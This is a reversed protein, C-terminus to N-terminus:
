VTPIVSYWLHMVFTSDGTTFDQTLCSLYLGKNVTTSFPAIAVTNGAVGNFQFSTSAVAFFDAAAETGSAAVGAGHVTADYQLGVVGGAQYAASVFTMCLAARHLVILTNAGQAALLLKPAAYMGNFQAATIAVTTYKLLLPSVMSSLVKSAGIATVGTNGITVDGTVAVSTAVNGASGVLINTSTLAALKSFDIAASASVKANTVASNAITLAGTNALTADGSMAVDTAVGAGSGVLIHTNTLTALKSFAIAASASIETNTISGPAVDPDIAVTVNPSVATVNLQDVGDSGRAWITDGITLHDAVDNFFASAEITALTISTDTYGWLERVSSNGAASLKDWKSLSFAM